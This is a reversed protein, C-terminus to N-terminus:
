FKRNEVHMHKKHVKSSLRKKIFHAYTVHKPNCTVFKITAESLAVFCSHSEIGVHVFYVFGALDNVKNPLKDSSAM